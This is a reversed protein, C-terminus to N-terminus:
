GFNIQALYDLLINSKQDFFPQQSCRQHSCFKKKELCQTEILINCEQFYVKWQDFPYQALVKTRASSKKSELCYNWKPKQMRSFFFSQALFCEALVRTSASSKKWELCSNRNRYQMRSFIVKSYVLGTVKDNQLKTIFNRKERKKQLMFYVNKRFELMGKEQVLWKKNVLVFLLNLLSPLFFITSKPKKSGFIYLIYESPRWGSLVKKQKHHVITGMPWINKLFHWMGHKGYRTTMHKTQWGVCESLCEGKERERGQSYKLWCMRM